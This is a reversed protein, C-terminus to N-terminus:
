LIISGFLNVHKKFAKFRLGKMLRFQPLNRCYARSPQFQKREQVFSFRIGSWRPMMLWSSAELAEFIRTKIKLLSIEHFIELLSLSHRIELCDCLFSVAYFRGTSHCIGHETQIESQQYQCSIDRSISSM